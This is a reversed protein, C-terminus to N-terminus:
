NFKMGTVRTIGELSDSNTVTISTASDFEFQSFTTGSSSTNAGHAIYKRSFVISAEVIQMTNYKGDDRWEVEIFDYTTIDTITFTGLTGGASTFLDVFTLSLPAIATTILANVPTTLYGPVCAKVVDTLATHEAQTAIEINGEASETSSVALDNFNDDMETFSLASGKVARTTVTIAM